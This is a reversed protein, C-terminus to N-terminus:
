EPLLEIGCFDLSRRTLGFQRLFFNATYKAMDTAVSLKSSVAMLLGKGSGHAHSDYLMYKGGGCVVLVTYPTKDMLFSQPLPSQLATKLVEELAQTAQEVTTFGFDCHRRPRLKLDPLVSLVNTVSLLGLEKAKNDYLRNGEQIASIFTNIVSPSPEEGSTPHPLQGQLCLQSLKAAIVTCASSGNRGGLKSQCVGPPAFYEWIQGGQALELRSSLQMPRSNTAAQRLSAMPQDGSGALAATIGAM